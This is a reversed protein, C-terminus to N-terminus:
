VPNVAGGTVYDSVDGGLKKITSVTQYFLEKDGKYGGEDLFRRLVTIGRPNGLDEFFLVGLLKDDMNRFYKRVIDFSEKKISDIKSSTLISILDTASPPVYGQSNVLFRSLSSIIAKYGEEGWIEVGGSIADYIYDTVEDYKLYHELVRELYSIDRFGSLCELIVYAVMMDTMNETKDLSVKDKNANEWSLNIAFDLLEDAVSEGLDEYKREILRAAPIFFLDSKDVIFKLGEIVEATNEIEDMLDYVSKNNMGDIPESLFILHKELIYKTNQEMFDPPVKEDKGDYINVILEKVLSKVLVNHADIGIKWLANDFM